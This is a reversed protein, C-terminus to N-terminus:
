QLECYKLQLKKLNVRIKNMVEKVFRDDNMYVEIEWNMNQRVIKIIELQNKYWMIMRIIDMEFTTKQQHREKIANYDSSWKM